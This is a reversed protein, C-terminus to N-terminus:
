GARDGVQFRVGILMNRSLVAYPNDSEGLAAFRALAETLLAQAAATDGRHNPITALRTIAQAVTLQDGLREALDRAESALRAVTELDGDVGALLAHAVMARARARTPAAASAVTRGLWLRGETLRGSFLWHFWLAATLRLADQSEESEPTDLFFELAARLNAHERDLRRFWGVQGPGFWEREAQEALRLYREAHGRRVRPEDGAASLRDRGYERLTELLGYWTQGDREETTLISKAVL